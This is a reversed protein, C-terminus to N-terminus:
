LGPPHRRTHGKAKRPATRWRPGDQTTTGQTDFRLGAIVLYVHGKRAYVTIWKGAGRKGYKLFGRSPMQDELLGANRLVYSAAGSCDYGSDNLRAHGGGWKYPLGAIRNAAAIARKVEVPAGSPAYAVGGHLEAVRGGTVRYAVAAPRGKGRKVKKHRSCGANLLIGAGLALVTIM